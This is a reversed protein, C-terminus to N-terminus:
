RMIQDIAVEGRESRRLASPIVTVWDGVEDKGLCSGCFGESEEDIEDITRTWERRYRVELDEVRTYRRNVDWDPGSDFVQHLLDGMCVQEVVGELYDSQDGMGCEVVEDPYILLLPWLWEGQEKYPETVAYRRQQAFLPAGLSICRKKMMITVTDREKQRERERLEREAGQRKLKEIKAEIKKRGQNIHYMAIDYKELFTACLIARYHAKLNGPTLRLCTEADRLSRGYNALKFEAMARNLYAPGLAEPVDKAAEIAQNYKMIAHKYGRNGRKFHRNGEDRFLESREEPTEEDYLLHSLAGIAPSVNEAENDDVKPIVAGSPAFLPCDEWDISNTTM